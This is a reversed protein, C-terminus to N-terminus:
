KIQQLLFEDTNFNKPLRNQGRLWEAAKDIEERTIARPRPTEPIRMTDALLPPLRYESTLIKRITDAQVAATMRRAAEEYVHAFVRAQAEHASRGKERQSVIWLTNCISKDGTRRIRKNGEAAAWTAYPEPLMAADLLGNRLMDARLYIDNIQPRYITSLDLGTDAAMRQCWYDSCSLRCVAVTKEKMQRMQRVRKGKLAVLSLPENIAMLPSIHLSDSQMRIARFPDSAAIQVHGRLVSTDVDMQAQYRWLRVSVGASDFMGTRQAYYVPLCGLTPLVAVNLAASDAEQPKDVYPLAEQRKTCSAMALITALLVTGTPRM